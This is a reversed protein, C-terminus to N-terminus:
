EYDNYESDFTKLSFMPINNLTSLALSIYFSWDAYTDNMHDQKKRIMGDLLVIVKCCHKQPQIIFSIYESNSQDMCHMSFLHHMEQQTYHNLIMDVTEFYSRELRGNVLTRIFFHYEKARLTTFIHELLQLNETYAITATISITRSM